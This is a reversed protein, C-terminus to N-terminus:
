RQLSQYQCRVLGWQMAQVLDPQENTVVPLTQSPAANYHSQQKYEKLAQKLNSSLGEYKEGTSYRGCM